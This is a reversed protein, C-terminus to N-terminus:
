VGEPSCQDVAPGPIHKKYDDNEICVRFRELIIQNDVHNGSIQYCNFTDGVDLDLNRWKPFYKLGNQVREGGFSPDTEEIGLM